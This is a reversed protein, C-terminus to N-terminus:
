WKEPSPIILLRLWYVTEDLEQLAMELKSIFEAGSRGCYAERYHAGISTGSRLVQNGIVQAETAKPLATYMKIVRLAFDETRQRLDSNSSM